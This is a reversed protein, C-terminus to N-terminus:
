TERAPSPPPAVDRPTDPVAAPAVCLRALTGTFDFGAANRAAILHVDAADPPNAAPVNTGFLALIVLASGASSVLKNM